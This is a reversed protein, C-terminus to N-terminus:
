MICLDINPEVQGNLAWCKCNGVRKLNLLLDHILVKQLLVHGSVM